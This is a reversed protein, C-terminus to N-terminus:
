DFTDRLNMVLARVMRFIWTVIVAMISLVIVAVVLWVFAQMWWAYQSLWDVLSALYGQKSALYAQGNAVASAGMATAEATSRPMAPANAAMETTTGAVSAWVRNVLDVVPGYGGLWLGLFVLVVLLLLKRM